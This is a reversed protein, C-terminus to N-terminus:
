TTASKRVFGLNAKGWLELKALECCSGSDPSPLGCGVAEEAAASTLEPGPLELVIVVVLGLTKM